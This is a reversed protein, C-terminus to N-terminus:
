AKALETEMWNLYNVAGEVIPVAVLEPIEYTHLREWEARVKDFLGRSTKIVLMVEAQQEVKGKWWYYSDVGRVINVCVALHQEVLHTALSQAEKLDSCTSYIIIKDTM